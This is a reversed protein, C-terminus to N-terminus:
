QEEKQLERAAQVKFPSYFIIKGNEEATLRHFLPKARQRKKQENQLARQYGTIRTELLINTTALNQIIDNLTRVRKNFIDTVMEKLM